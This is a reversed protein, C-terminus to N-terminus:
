TLQVQKVGLQRWDSTAPGSIGRRSQSPPLLAVHGSSRDGGADTVIKADFYVAIHSRHGNARDRGLPYVKHSRHAYLAM